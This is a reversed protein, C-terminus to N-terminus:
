KIVPCRFGALVQRGFPTHSSGARLAFAVSQGGVNFSLRFSEEDGDPTLAGAGFLRFLAWPGSAQQVPAAGPAGDLRLSTDSMGDVGPWTFSTVMGSATGTSATGLTLVAKASTAGAEPQLTFRLQPQNGGLPFFTDKITAARQFSALTAADVPANVGNLAHLRWVTQRTDVFPKIQAQFYSDLLGGPAFVRAFDDIPADRTSAQDFPYHGDVLSRCTNGPGNGDAFAASAADHVASGLMTNGSAAIQRLWTSVPVPQRGAEALLLQVPDGGGQLTAPLTTNGLTAAALEQQLANILHLVQDLPAANGSGALDIVPQFHADFGRLATVPEVGKANAPAAVVFLKQLSTDRAEKAPTAATGGSPADDLRVERAIATLLQRIPSQPSSLVYLGRIAADRNGFSTLALDGLLDDWHKQADAAYLAVVSQELAAVEPGETPIQEAHGLVWSEGAVARATAALNHLLVGHFGAPTFFGPIGETLKRGSPRTFMEVGSPGLADAPTWEPLSQAGADARLRSYVREAVSVRSFTARAAEVLAGDLMVPPLPTALMADLHTLLRSRLANNLEGPFRVQWDAAMWAHVLKADLPGAGGLMLYVRTAEYLFDADAFRGRMQQELRWILRPLLMRQLAHQYVLRDTQALKAAQSLGRFTPEWGDGGHPLAAAADLLPAVHPLDDDDVPELRLGSLVQRYAALAEDAQAVAVRNATDARWLLFACAVTAVGVISFGGIRLIRRRRARSSRSTVLLAEGLIVERLMRTIFYGRGAAPRLSPARKQDIGFSRALMGILRDIPTGEQTASTMYIGRLFPAPDLRSGSFAQTMFDNLSQELSAVQLPFGCILARREAAPEAQLREILREELRGLLLRFERSFAEVGTELPFTMGWVQARRTADLDDFYADFGRLQDAKSFVVYVPVRMQLRESIENIRLRVSRAHAALDSRTAAALDALSFVAIVGNIPQRPRTRRLLDLFGQWGARDVAADSDQTTYRGATDILVAEDAFWWDCLRTGGLGSIAPDEADQALPFHLGSNLLATTKGSGPPGILVYWPQEYLNHGGRRRLRLLAQKMRERLRAVEEAADAETEQTDRGEGTMAAALKQARRRKRWSLVVNVGLCIVLLAVIVAIRRLPPQLAPVIPLIYWVLTSAIAWGVLGTTWRSTLNMLLFPIRDM